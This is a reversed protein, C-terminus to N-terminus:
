NLVLHYSINQQTENKIHIQYRETFVPLWQCSARKRMNPRVCIASGQSNKVSVSVESEPSPVLAISAKKGALFLQELIIVDHSSVVGKKYAPGLVRGRYVPPNIQPNQRIATAAWLKALDEDGSDAPRAGLVDLVKAAQMLHESDAAENAQNGMAIADAVRAVDSDQAIEDGSPTPATIPNRGPQSSTCSAIAGIVIMAVLSATVKSTVTRTVPGAVKGTM